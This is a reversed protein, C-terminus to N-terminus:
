VNACSHEVLNLLVVSTLLLYVLINMRSLTVRYFFYYATPLIAVRICRLIVPSLKFLQVLYLLYQIIWNIYFQLLYLSILSLFCILLQKPSPSPHSANCLSLLFRQFHHIHENVGDVSTKKIQICKEVWISM